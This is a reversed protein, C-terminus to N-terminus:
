DGGATVLGASNELLGEVVLEAGGHVSRLQGGTNLVEAAQLRLDGGTALTGGNNHFAGDVRVQSAEGGAAQLTGARNDLEGASLELAGNGAIVGDTNDLLDRVRLQLAEFGSAILRGGATILEGAEVAIRRASTDGGNLDIHEGTINLAGN